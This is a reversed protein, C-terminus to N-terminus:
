EGIGNDPTNQACSAHAVRGERCRRLRADRRGFAPPSKDEGARRKGDHRQDEDIQARPGAIDREGVHDARQEIAIRDLNAQAHDHPVDAQGHRQLGRQEARHQTHRAGM